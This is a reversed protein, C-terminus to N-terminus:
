FIIWLGFLILAIGSIKKVGVKYSRIQKSLTYGGLLGVGIFPTLVGASFAILMILNGITGNTITKNILVLLMPATCPVKIFSFLVGLFFVGGLTGVYKRASNQFYNDLAIPSNLIGLLNLGILIIIIGTIYSFSELNP